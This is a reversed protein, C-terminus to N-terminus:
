SSTSGLDPVADLGRHVDVLTSVNRIALLAGEVYPVASTGSDDRAGITEDIAVTPQPRRVKSL